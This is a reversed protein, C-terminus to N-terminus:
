QAGHNIAGNCLTPQYEWETTFKQNLGVQSTTEALIEEEMDPTITEKGILFNLVPNVPNINEVLQPRNCRLKYKDHPNM